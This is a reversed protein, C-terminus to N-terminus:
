SMNPPANPCSQVNHEKTQYDAESLQSHKHCPRKKFSVAQLAARDESYSLNEPEFQGTFGHRFVPLYCSPGRRCCHSVLLEDVEVHEWQLNHLCGHSDVSSQGQYQILFIGGYQWRLDDLMMERQSNIEGITVIREM